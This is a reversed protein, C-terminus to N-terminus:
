STSVASTKSHRGYAKDLQDQLKEIQLEAKKLDVQSKKLQAEVSIKGAAQGKISNLSNRTAIRANNELERSKQELAYKQKDMETIRQELRECKTEFNDREATVRRLKEQYGQRLENIKTEKWTLLAQFARIRQKIEKKDSSKLDGLLPMQNMLMRERILDIQEDLDEDKLDEFPAGNTFNSIDAKVASYHSSFM